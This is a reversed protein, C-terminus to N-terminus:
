PAEVPSNIADSSTRIAVYEDASASNSRKIRHGKSPSGIGFSFHMVVM